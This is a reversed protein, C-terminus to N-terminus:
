RLGLIKRGIEMRKAMVLMKEQAEKSVHKPARYSAEKREDGGILCFEMIERAEDEKEEPIDDRWNANHFGPIKYEGEVEKVKNAIKKSM